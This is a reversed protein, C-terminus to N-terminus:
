PGVIDNGKDEPAIEVPEGGDEIEPTEAGAAPEITAADDAADGTEGAAPAIANLAAAADDVDGLAANGAHAFPNGFGSRAEEAVVTAGGTIDAAQATQVDTGAWPDVAFAPLAILCFATALLVARM